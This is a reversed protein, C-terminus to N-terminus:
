DTVPRACPHDAWSRALLIWKIANPTDVDVLQGMRVGLAAVVSAGSKEIVTQLTALSYFREAVVHDSRIWGHPRSSFRTLKLGYLGPGTTRLDTRNWVFFDNPYELVTTGAYLTEFTWHTNADLVLLGGPRLVAVAGGVASALEAESLLHNPIDGCMTVVDFGEWARPLSRIDAQHFVLDPYKIGARALMEVSLDCGVARLGLDALMATSDGTGCALDLATIADPMHQGLLGNLQAAWIRRDDGAKLADYGLASLSDYFAQSNDATPDSTM